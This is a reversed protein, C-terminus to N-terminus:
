MMSKVHRVVVSRSRGSGFSPTIARAGIWAEHICMGLLCLWPVFFVITALRVPEQLDPGLLKAMVTGALSAFGGAALSALYFCTAVMFREAAYLSRFRAKVSNVAKARNYMLAALAALIALPALCQPWFSSLDYAGQTIRFVVARFAAAVVALTSLFTIFLFVRRRAATPRWNGPKNMRSWEILDFPGDQVRNL